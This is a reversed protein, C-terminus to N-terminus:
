FEGSGLCLQRSKAQQSNRNLIKIVKVHNKIRYKLGGGAYDKQIGQYGLDVLVNMGEFWPHESGFENKLMTYDHHHGSFTSGVFLIWKSLTSV